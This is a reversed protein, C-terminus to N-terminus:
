NVSLFLSYKRSIKELPCVCAEKSRVPRFDLGAYIKGDTTRLATNYEKRSMIQQNM